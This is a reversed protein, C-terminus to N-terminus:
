NTPRGLETEIVLVNKRLENATKMDEHAIIDAFRLIAARAAVGSVDGRGPFCVFPPAINMGEGVNAVIIGFSEEEGKPPFDIVNEDSM